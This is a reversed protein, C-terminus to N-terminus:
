QSRMVIFSAQRAADPSIPQRDNKESQDRQQFRDKKSCQMLGSKASLPCLTIDSDHGSEPYLRIDINFAKVEV